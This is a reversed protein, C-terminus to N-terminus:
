PTLGNAANIAVDIFPSWYLGILIVAAVTLALAVTMSIPVKLVTEKGKEPELVYMNRIVKAYYYLSLASNLVGAVALLIFWGGAYVASSFLVFKSAFGALPPIGALSLLFVMMSFAVFPAKKGLGKYDEINEGVLTVACIAVVIFAGAKMFAHTLIHFLGGALAYDAMARDTGYSGGYVAVAILIYGAQAISSYALMRKINTQRIALVNGVTMTLVSIVAIAVYWDVRIAILGILFVKFMAAFGMKKSGAALFATVTTPSGEYVDPAWMQFPVAAIKFGLGAILCISGLILMPEYGVPIITLKITLQDLATTGAVGYIISIGYITIASSLAGIIFYKAGAEASKDDKKRYGALVYTAISATEIGLFVVILDNATSVLIMGVTAFLILSYYESQHDDDKVYYSSVMVVLASVSLFVFSFFLSFTDIRLMGNFLKIPLSPWSLPLGLYTFVGLMGCTLFMSSLIGVLAYYALWHRENKKLVYGFAPTTIGFLILLIEPMLLLYTTDISFSM